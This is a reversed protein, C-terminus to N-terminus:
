TVRNEKVSPNIACFKTLSGTGSLSPTPNSMRSNLVFDSPKFKAPWVVAFLTVRACSLSQLELLVRSCCRALVPNAFNAFRRFQLQPPRLDSRFLQSCRLVRQQLECRRRNRFGGGLILTERTPCCCVTLRLSSIRCDTPLANLEASGICTVALITLRMSVTLYM